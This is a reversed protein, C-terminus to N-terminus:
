LHYCRFTVTGLCGLWLLCRNSVVDGLTNCASNSYSRSDVAIEVTGSTCVCPSGGTSGQGDVSRGGVVGSTAEVTKTPEVNKIADSLPEM